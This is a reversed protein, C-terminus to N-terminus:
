FPPLGPANTDAAPAPTAPAAAPATSAAMPDPAPAAVAGTQVAPPQIRIDEVEDDSNKKKRRGVLARATRGKLAAIVQEDSPEAAFFDDGLGLAAMEKFWIAVLGPYNEVVTDSLTMWNKFKREALPGTTVEFQVIFGMGGKTPKEAGVVRVDYAGVPFMELGADQRKKLLDRYFANAM